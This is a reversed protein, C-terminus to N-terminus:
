GGWSGRAASESGFGGRSATIARSGAADATAHASSYGGSAWSGGVGSAPRYDQGDRQRYLPVSGYYSAGGGNLIRGLIFGTMLPGWFSGQRDDTREQCQDPGFQQICEERTKYHPAASNAAAQAQDFARECDAPTNGASTCAAVTPYSQEKIQQDQSGGCASLFLPTAGMLLLAATSSRKM